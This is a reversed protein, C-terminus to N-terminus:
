DEVPFSFTDSDAADYRLSKLMIFDSEELFKIAHSENTKLIVGQSTGVRFEDREGNEVNVTKITASGRSIYFFIVTKKHYHNGMVADAKMSGRILNEWHGDNLVEQFHGREDNREFSPKLIEHSM